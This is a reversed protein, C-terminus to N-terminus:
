HRATANARLENIPLPICRIEGECVLNEGVFEEFRCTFMKGRRLKTMQCVITLRDGPLVIGRFKVNNLGGFGVVECRLLDHRRSHYSCVQAAAECMIVGPMLPVGPMHGSHWFEPNSTDDSIDKYGIAIHTKPDDYVIATLQQMADRQPNLLRIAEIDAVVNCYDIESPDVLFDKGPM